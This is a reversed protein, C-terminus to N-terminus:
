PVAVLRAAGDGCVEVPCPVGNVEQVDRLIICKGPWAERVARVRRRYVRAHGGGDRGEHALRHHDVVRHEVYELSLEAERLAGEGVEVGGGRWRPAFRSNHLGRGVLATGADSRVCVKACQYTTLEGHGTTGHAPLENSAPCVNRWLRRPPRWTM